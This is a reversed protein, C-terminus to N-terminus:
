LHKELYKVADAFSVKCLKMIFSINDGHEGCAFCYFSNDKKYIVMSPNKDPHFPCLFKEYGNGRRSRKPPLFSEIPVKKVKEITEPSIKKSSNTM